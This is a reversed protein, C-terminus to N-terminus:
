KGGNAKLDNICNNDLSLITNGILNNVLDSTETAYYMLCDSNNCHKGHPEDQHGVTMGTGNNVLGLIHCFEHESVSTEVSSVSPQGLGGSLDRITKEFVVMSSPSYAIGLTKLNGSNQAYDGDIFLIYAVITKGEAKASRNLNEVSRIDELTYITKGPSGINSYVVEVGAPKNLRQMLFNKLHDVATQTPQLGNVSQIQITLKDYHESSLFEKATISTPAGGTAPIITNEKKCSILAILFVFSLFLQKM